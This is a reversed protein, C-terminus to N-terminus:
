IIRAAPTVQRSHILGAPIRHMCRKECGALPSHLLGSDPVSRCPFLFWEFGKKCKAFPRHEPFTSFHSIFTTFSAKFCNEWATIKLLLCKGLVHQGLLGAATALILFFFFSDTCLKKTLSVRAKCKNKLFVFLCVYFQM